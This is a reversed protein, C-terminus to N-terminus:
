MVWAPLRDDHAIVLSHVIVAELKPLLQHWLADRDKCIRIQPEDNFDTVHIERIEPLRSGIDEFLRQAETRIGGSNLFPDSVYITCWDPNPHFKTQLLLENDYVAEGSLPAPPVAAGAWATKFADLFRGVFSTRKITM